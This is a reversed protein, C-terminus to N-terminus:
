TAGAGEGAVGVSPKPRFSLEKERLANYIRSIRDDKVDDVLPDLKDLAFTPPFEVTLVELNAHMWAEYDGVSGDERWHADTMQAYLGRIKYQDRQTRRGFTFRGIGEVDVAFDGSHATRM